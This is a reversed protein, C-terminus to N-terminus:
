AEKETSRKHGSAAPADEESGMDPHAGSEALEDKTFTVSQGPELWHTTGDALNIGRAGAANNTFKAM